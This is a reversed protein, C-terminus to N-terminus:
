LEDAETAKAAKAAKAAAIYGLAGFIEDINRCVVAGAEALEGGIDVPLSTNSGDPIRNLKGGIFIPLDIGQAHVQDELDRLFELTVGNYSSLAIFDAGERVVTEALDNPDISVGGDVIAVDLRGLVTEVLIKGYEHVDTTAVCGRLDAVRITERLAPDLNAVHGEGTEEMEEISTSTEVPKRGRLRGPMEEGPGFLEELRKSGTRRIALMLEMPDDTDIGGEALGDLVARAFRRGAEVIREAMADAETTDHMTEFPAELEITRNAILHVEVIEEIDPIREAETLPITQIAQGTPRLRQALADLRVYNSLAAANLAHDPGYMTTAGAILTGPTDTVM